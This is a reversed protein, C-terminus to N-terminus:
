LGGIRGPDSAGACTHPGAIVFVTTRLFTQTIEQRSLSSAAPILDPQHTYDPRRPQRVSARFRFRM